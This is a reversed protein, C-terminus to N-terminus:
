SPGWYILVGLPQSGPIQRKLVLKGVVIQKTLDQGLAWPFKPSTEERGFERSFGRSAQAPAGSCCALRCRGTNPTGLEPPFIDRRGHRKREPAGAQTRPQPEVLAGRPGAENGVQLGRARRQPVDPLLLDLSTALPDWAILCAPGLHADGAPSRTAQHCRLPVQVSPRTVPSEQTTAPWRRRPSALRDGRKAAAPAQLDCTQVAESSAPSLGARPRPSKRRRSGGDNPSPGPGRPLSRTLAGPAAPDRNVQPRPM